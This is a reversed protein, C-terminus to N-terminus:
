LGRIAWLLFASCAVSVFNRSNSPGRVTSTWRTSWTRSRPTPRTRDWRDWWQPYNRFHLHILFKSNKCYQIVDCTPIAVAIMKSLSFKGLVSWKRNIQSRLAKKIKAEPHLFYSLRVIKQHRSRTYFLHFYAVWLFRLHLMSFLTLHKSLILVKKVLCQEFTHGSPNNLIQDNLVIFM